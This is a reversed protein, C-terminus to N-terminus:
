GAPRRGEFSGAAPPPALEFIKWRPIFRGLRQQGVRSAYRLRFFKLPAVSIDGPLVAPLGDFEQLRAQLTRFYAATPLWEGDRSVALPPRGLGRAYNEVAPFLDRALVFRVRHSRAIALAEEENETLFFRVSEEFDYGFNDAVVPREAFYTVFHGQSWFTMVSSATQLEPIPTGAELFRGDYADVPAPMLARLRGLAERLDDSPAFGTAIERPLRLIMPFALALFLALFVPVRSRRAEGREMKRRLLAALQVSIEIASLAGLLSAYYVNRRQLLAFGFTFTGWLALTAPLTADPSRRLRRAWLFVAVPSLFFAFSLLGFPWDWRDALLPRYEVIQSLWQRSYSMLGGSVVKGGSSSSWLHRIGMELAPLFSQRCLVVPLLSVALLVAAFLRGGRGLRRGRFALLAALVFAFAGSLFVPQFWGFSVYTFPVTFGSLWYGTALAVLLAPAGLVLLARGLIGRCRGLVVALVLAGGFLPAWFIAGQWTLVAMALCLGAGLDLLLASSAGGGSARSLVPNGMARRRSSGLFLALAFFGWFSEAVHQDTHGFQSYQLHGPCVAVFFAAAPGWGRRVAAGALGAALIAGAAFFIPVWFATKEILAPTATPGAALRAPLALALDFLPPWICIGGDPFNILPDFVITKPFHAVAFRARRLHYVCDPSQKWTVQLRIAVGLAMAAVVLVIQRTRRTM